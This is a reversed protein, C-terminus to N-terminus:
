EMLEDMTCALTEAICKVILASPQKLGKLLYSMYAQSVGCAEALQKQSVGLTSMRQKVKETNM